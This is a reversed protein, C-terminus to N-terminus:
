KLLWPTQVVCWQLFRIQFDHIRASTAISDLERASDIGARCAQNAAPGPSAVIGPLVTHTWMTHYSTVPDRKVARGISRTYAAPQSAPRPAVYQTDAAARNTPSSAMTAATRRHIAGAACVRVVGGSATNLWSSAAAGGTRGGFLSTTPNRRSSQRPRTHTTVPAPPNTPWCTTWAALCAYSM